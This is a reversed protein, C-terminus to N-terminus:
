DSHSDLSDFSRCESAFTRCSIDGFRERLHRSKASNQRRDSERRLCPLEQRCKSWSQKRGETSESNRPCLGCRMRSYRGCERSHGCTVLHHLGCACQSWNMNREVHLMPDLLRTTECYTVFSRSTLPGRLYRGRSSWQTSSLEDFISKRKRIESRL